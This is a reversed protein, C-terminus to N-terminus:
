LWPITREPDTEGDNRGEAIIGHDFAADNARARVPRPPLAPEAQGAVTLLDPKEGQGTPLM